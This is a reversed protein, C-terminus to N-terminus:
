HPLINSMNHIKCTIEFLSLLHKCRITIKIEQLLYDAKQGSKGPLGTILGKTMVLFGPNSIHSSVYSEAHLMAHCFYYYYYFNNNLFNSRKVSRNSVNNKLCFPEIARKPFVKLFTSAM